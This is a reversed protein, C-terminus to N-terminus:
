KIMKRLIGVGKEGIVSSVADKVKHKTDQAFHTMLELADAEDNYDIFIEFVIPKDSKSRVFTELAKSYEEKNSATLYEFGLDEAFHRVLTKSKNGFHGEAAMYLNAREGYASCKHPKMKFEAGIGNNVLFIRLNGGVHRNGLANIDYFFALDGTALFCTRNPSVLSAGILSSNSGDIGCCGVNSACEVNEPLPFMNWCRRTNSASIHLLSGSPIKKSMQSVAWINCFPLEPMQEYLPKIMEIIEDYAKHHCSGEQGYHVFFQEEPMQFVNTLKHYPDRLEGDESIRWVEKTHIAASYDAASVEGIHILLEFEPFPYSLGKQQLLMAPLIKYNGYYGSTQDCFVVADYTACFVDLANTQETTFKRHAGIYVAIKGKPLSPMTDWAFYRHMVRVTPLTEVSFDTSYITFINIHVPGGGNRRLELLAHNIERTVFTEDRQDKVVPIEVQLVAIDHPIQRRDINQAILQGIRDNGQHSTVALVPLKRYFAETLGPYYDRSATAGTCSLVVPEGSEAAMGCAMYAAGREDVASYINFWSDNQLSGVLSMNTAGPSAVVKRIGNAKLLAILIQINKETSYM